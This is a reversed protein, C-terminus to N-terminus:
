HLVCCSSSCRWRSGRLCANCLSEDSDESSFHHMDILRELFFNKSVGSIGTEPISFVNRCLPCDMTDGAKKDRGTGELCKLCFTHICPLVRPDSFEEMCISCELMDSLNVMSSEAM